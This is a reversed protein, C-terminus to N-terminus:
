IRVVTTKILSIGEAVLTVPKDETRDSLRSKVKRVPKDAAQQVVILEGDKSEGVAAFTKIDLGVAIEVVVPKEAGTDSIRIAGDPDYSIGAFSRRLEVKIQAIRPEELNGFTILYLDEGIEGIKQINIADNTVVVNPHRSILVPPQLTRNWVEAGAAVIRYRLLAALEM